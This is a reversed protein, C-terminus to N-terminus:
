VDIVPLQATRRAPDDLDPWLDDDPGDLVRRQHVLPNCRPIIARITSMSPANHKPQPPLLYHTMNVSPQLPSTQSPTLEVLTNPPLQDMQIGDRNLQYRVARINM